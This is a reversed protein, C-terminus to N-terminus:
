HTMIVWNERPHKMMVRKERALKMIIWTARSHKMNLWNVRFYRMIVGDERPHTNNGLEGQPTETCCHEGQSTENYNLEDKSRGYGLEGQFKENYELEEQSTANKDLKSDSNIFITMSTVVLPLGNELYSLFITVVM